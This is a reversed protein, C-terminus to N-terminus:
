HGYSADKKAWRNSTSEDQVRPQAECLHAVLVVSCKKKKLRDLSIKLTGVVVHPTGGPWM